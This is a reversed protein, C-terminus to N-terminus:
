CEKPTKYNHRKRPRTNLIDAIKTCKRQNIQAMSKKKPLYQRILGNANENSGHEWSHYPNAFYFLVGTRQEIERYSHFETGHDSTIAYVNKRHKRILQVARQETAKKMKNSLKGILVYGTKRELLTLICHKDSSGQVTDIEWHGVTKRM